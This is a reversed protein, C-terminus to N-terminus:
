GVEGGLVSAHFGAVMAQLVAPPHVVLRDAAHEAVLLVRCGPVLGCWHRVSAPLRVQGVRTVRFVAGADATVLVLGGMVRIDLRTGVPWGLSPIVVADALRGNCDVAAMGCVAVPGVPPALPPLPLVRREPHPRSAAQSTNSPIVPAVILATVVVV